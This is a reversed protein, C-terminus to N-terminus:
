NVLTLSVQYLIVLLLEQVTAVVTEYSNSSISPVDILESVNIEIPEYPTYISPMSNEFSVKEFKM